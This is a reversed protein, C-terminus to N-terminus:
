SLAARVAKTVRIWIEDKKDKRKGFLPYDHNVFQLEELEPFLDTPRVLVPIITPCGSPGPNFLAKLEYKVIYNTAQFSPSVLLVAVDTSAVKNRIIDDWLDGARIKTDDWLSVVGRNILPTLHERLEELYKRDKRSYSVFVTGPCKVEDLREFLFRDVDDFGKSQSAMKRRLLESFDNDDLPVIVKELGRFIRQCRDIVSKRIGGRYALLGFNMYRDFAVDLGDFAKDKLSHRANRCEVLIRKCKLEYKNKLDLFFGGKSKNDALIERFGNPQTFRFNRLEDAFLHELLHLITDEYESATDYGERVTSLAEIWLAETKLQDPDPDGKTRKSRHKVKKPEVTEPDPIKDDVVLGRDIVEPNIVKAITAPGAKRYLRSQNRWTAEIKRDYRFGAQALLADIENVTYERYFTKYKTARGIYVGDGIKYQDSLREHYKSDGRQTYWLLFGNESLREHCLKLILMRESPIPVINMVNILLALKYHHRSGIFDHPYVLTSFRDAFKTKAIALNNSAPKSHKFQDAFEVACVRYGQKLLYITNRLKGAGFDLITDGRGVEASTLTHKLAGTLAKGPKPFSPASRTVDIVIQKYIHNGDEDTGVLQNLRYISSEWM